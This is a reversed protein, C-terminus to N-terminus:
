DGDGFVDFWSGGGDDSGGWGAGENVDDPVDDWSDDASEEAFIGEPPADRSLWESADDPAPPATDSASSAPDASSAAVDGEGGMGRQMAEAMATGAVMGGIGGGADDSPRFDPPAATGSPVPASSDPVSEETRSDSAESGFFPFPFFGGAGGSHRSFYDNDLSVALALIVARESLSLQGSVDPTEPQDTAPGTQQLPLGHQALSELQPRGEKGTADGFRVCYQGADTMLEFGFGRWNRDIVAMNEGNEGKVEFTWWWFGWNNVEGFQRNGVYSDYNRKWLHWRRHAEGIKEGSPTEVTITSNLFFIPRKIKIIERGQADLVSATFPRRSRLLQRLIPNSEEVVFGVPTDPQYPDVITYKNQQEFGILLNAWEVKRTMILDSRALVSAFAAEEASKPRLAGVLPQTPPPVQPMMSPDVHAEQAGVEEYEAPYAQAQRRERDARAIVRKQWRVASDEQMANAASASSHFTRFANSSLSQPSMSSHMSGHRPLDFPLQKPGEAEAAQFDPKPSSKPFSLHEPRTVEQPVSAALSANVLHRQPGFPGHRALWAVERSLVGSAKLSDKPLKLRGGSLLFRLAM